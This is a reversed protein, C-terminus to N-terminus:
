RGQHYITVNHYHSPAAKKAAKTWINLAQIIHIHMQRSSYEQVQFSFPLRVMGLVIQIDLFIFILEILELSQSPLKKSVSVKPSVSTSRLNKWREKAKELVVIPFGVIKVKKLGIEIVLGYKVRPWFLINKRTGRDNWPRNSSRASKQFMNQTM